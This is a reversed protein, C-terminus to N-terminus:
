RRTPRVSQMTIGVVFASSRHRDTTLVDLVSVIWRAAFRSPRPTTKIRGAFTPEPVNVLELVTLDCATFTPFVLNCQPCHKM